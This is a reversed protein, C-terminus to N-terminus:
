TELRAIAIGREGAVAYLLYTADGDEFICPDRLQNVPPEIIGRASPALPEGAGKKCFFM